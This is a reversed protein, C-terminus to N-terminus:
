NKKIQKLNSYILCGDSCHNVLGHAVGPLMGSTSAPILSVCVTCLINYLILLIMPGLSSSIPRMHGTSPAQFWSAHWKRLSNAVWRLLCGHDQLKKADFMHM